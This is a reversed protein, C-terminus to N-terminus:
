IIDFDSSKLGLWTCLKERAPAPGMGIIRPSVGATAGGVIRAIPSLGHAKMGVETALILVAAGDNVGSANVATVSGGTRFPTPLGALKELSIQRPHEYVPDDKRQQVKVAVIEGDLTGDAVARAARQQSRLAFTDQDQRSIGFYAAVNEATEPMSDTGFRRQM